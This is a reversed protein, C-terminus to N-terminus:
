EKVLKKVETFEGSLVEVFYLGKALIETNILVGDILSQGFQVQIQFVQAGMANYLKVSTMENLSANSAKLTFSGNAPNPYISLGANNKIHTTSLVCSGDDDTAEPNYNIAEPNTCGPIEDADCIGDGDTDIIVLENGLCESCDEVPELCSDDSDTALPNYNCATPSQCGAVEDADCIGDGDTDIILLGDNTANCASCDAVPVICSGDNVNAIPDYNCAAPDTCGPFEEYQCSGDDDTAAPNYNVALPDTCGAIEDADCIGDGDTDIILLDDNTDNCVTCDEVPVLCTGNDENAAPDYNCATPDTCGPIPVLPYTLGAFTYELGAPNNAVYDEFGGNPNGIRLNLEFSLDGNTTIQALLIKNEATPGTTGGLVAWAGNTISFVESSNATGFVDWATLNAPVLTVEPGPGTILGDATTLPAGALPNNNVLLGGPIGASGSNNVGGVVSGNVDESKLVAWHGNSASGITIWSDLPVTNRNLRNSRIERGIKEGWDANNFFYTSTAIFLEHAPSGYVTEVKWGPALDVYIRYTVSGQVLSGGLQDTADNADSVYYVEVIVDELGIQAQMFISQLSLIALLFLNKM